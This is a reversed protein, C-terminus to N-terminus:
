SVASSRGASRPLIPGMLDILSADFTASFFDKSV